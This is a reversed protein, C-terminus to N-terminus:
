FSDGVLLYLSSSETHTKVFFMRFFNASIGCNSRPNGSERSYACARNASRSVIGPRPDIFALKNLINKTLVGM